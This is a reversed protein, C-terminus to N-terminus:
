LKCKNFLVVRKNIVRMPKAMSNVVHIITDIIARKEFPDSTAQRIKILEDIQNSLIKLLDDYNKIARIM